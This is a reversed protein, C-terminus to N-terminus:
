GDSGENLKMKAEDLRKLAEDLQNRTLLDKVLAITYTAENKVDTNETSDMTLRVPAAHTFRMPPLGTASPEVRTMTYTFLLADIVDPQSIFTPSHTTVLVQRLPEDVWQPDSFDTALGRLLHAINTLYSPHIANEPEEFCLVGRFQSDCKLTALALLQLTGDSLVRSSLVRGDVYKVWITYENRVQDKKLEIDILDPVLSSLTMSVDTLAFNDKTQMRALTTPLNGGDSSLFWPANASSPQRLAAPNLHLFRMARLKERAAFAHYSALHRSSLLSTVINNALATGNFTLTTSLYGQDFPIQENDNWIAESYVKLVHIGDAGRFLSFLTHKDDLSEPLPENQLNLNYRKSWNDIDTPIIRLAEHKMDWQSPEDAKVYLAIELEYRLRTYKLEVIRGSATKGKQDMLMEVAIKISDSSRGDPYKTFLEGSDGRLEQFAEYLFDKRVLRSLLQLADFLNSKGSGNPGVIVQFPALEVQFDKFTKFGDIEIQTIMRKGYGGM